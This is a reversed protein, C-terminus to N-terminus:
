RENFSCFYKLENIIWVVENLFIKKIKCSYKEGNVYTLENPCGGKCLNLYNCSKCYTSFKDRNWKIQNDLLTSYSDKISGIKDNINHCAYINGKLDLNISSNTQGCFLIDENFDKFYSMLYPFFLRVENTIYGNKIDNVAILAVEHINDKFKNLNFNYLNKPMEWNIKLMEVTVPIDGFLNRYYLFLKCFDYNYSSLVSCISKNKINLFLLKFNEDSLIDINRTNLTNEGDHSLAFFINNDNLFKVIDKNLLSGNSVMSYKFRDGFYNVIYKIINLYLLPEGGWFRLDIKKFTLPRKDLINNLYEIVDPSVDNSINFCNSQICYNCKFNCSSGLMLYITNVNISYNNKELMPCNIDGKNLNGRYYSLCKLGGKCGNKYSCKNCEEPYSKISDSIKKTFPNKYIDILTNEKFNGLKIPMRRCPYVTGDSIVTLNKVIGSCRYCSDNNFDPSYLFQLSRKMLVKFDTDKYYIKLKKIISLSKIFEDTSVPKLIDENFPIMRDFWISYAGAEFVSKVTEEICNFNLSNLTYSVRIKVGLSKALSIKSLICKFTGKGRILDNIKENGEISVQISVIKRKKLEILIDKNLLLGNTLLNIKSVGSNIALDIYALINKILLPEGGTINLTMGDSNTYHTLDKFQEMLLKFDNLSLLKNTNKGEQYCHKCKLNCSDTLHVQLLRKM